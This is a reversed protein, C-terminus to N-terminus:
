IANIELFRNRFIFITTIEIHFFFCIERVSKSYVIAKVEIYSLCLHRIVVRQSRISMPLFEVNIPMSPQILIPYDIISQRHNNAFFLQITSTYETINEPLEISFGITKKTQRGISSM